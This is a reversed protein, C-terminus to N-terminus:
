DNEKNIINIAFERTAVDIRDRIRLYLLAMGNVTGKGFGVWVGCLFATLLLYAILAIYM